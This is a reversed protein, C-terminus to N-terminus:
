GENQKIKVQNGRDREQPHNMKQMKITQPRTRRADLRRVMGPRLLIWLVLQQSLIKM